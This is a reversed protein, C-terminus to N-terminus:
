AQKRSRGPSNHRAKESKGKANVPAKSTESSSSSVPHATDVARPDPSAGRADTPKARPKRPASLPRPSPDVRSPPAAAVKPSYADNNSGLRRPSRTPVPSSTLGLVDNIISLKEKGLQASSICRNHPFFGHLKCLRLFHEITHTDPQKTIIYTRIRNAKLNDLLQYLAQYRRMSGFFYSVWQDFFKSVTLPFAECVKQMQEISILGRHCTLTLDHDFFVDRIHPHQTTQEYIGDIQRISLGSRAHYLRENGFSSSFLDDIMQQMRNTNAKSRVYQGSEHEVVIPTESVPICGIHPYRDRDVLNDPDDDAFLAVHEHETSSM